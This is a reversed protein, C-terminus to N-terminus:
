LLYNIREIRKQIGACIFEVRDELAPNKALVQAAEEVFGNLGDLDLWSYDDVLRLQRNADEYFPKTTFSHDGLHLQGPTAFCWLSSGTDFLPAIRFELTEVNRILGFNRWHRDINGMLDDCVIMKALAQDIQEVGLKTVCEIYHQYDSHHNAQRMVQRVYYAPIYEEDSAVFNRCGSVVEGGFCELMYPVYEEKKLLRRYLSSAVVENYPEQNLASGGKLLRRERGDCIWKKSLQGESTNDPSNLGVGDLWTGELSFEDFDNHFFNIDEWSVSSALPRIWYQDSLSLGFSEFPLEYVSELGLQALKAEVGSRTSPITRHRWWFALSDASARSGRPGVLGLPARSADIIHDTGFLTKTKVDYKFTLIEHGRNMLTYTQVLSDDRERKPPRGAKPQSALRAEVSAKNILWMSGVKEGELLNLNILQYVRPVSIGLLEAAEVVTLVFM